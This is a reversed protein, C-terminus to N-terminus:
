HARVYLLKRALERKGDVRAERRVRSTDPGPRSWDREINGIMRNRGLSGLHAEALDAETIARLASLAQQSEVVDIQL